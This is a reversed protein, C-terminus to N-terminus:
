STLRHLRYALAAITQALTFTDGDLSDIWKGVQITILIKIDEDNSADPHSAAFATFPLIADDVIGEIERISETINHDRVEKSFPVIPQGATETM